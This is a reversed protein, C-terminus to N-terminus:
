DVSLEELFSFIHGIEFSLSTNRDDGQRTEKM